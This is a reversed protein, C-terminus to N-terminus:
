NENEKNQVFKNWTQTINTLKNKWNEVEEPSYMRIEGGQIEAEGGLSDELVGEIDAYAEELNDKMEETPQWLKREIAETLRRSIEEAAWINNEAFWKRMEEDIIYTEAINDFVWDNVLKTTSSWGYLHLIKKSFENAG